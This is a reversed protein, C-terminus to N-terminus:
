WLRADRLDRADVTVGATFLRTWYHRADSDRRDIVPSREIGFSLFIRLEGEVDARRRRPAPMQYAITPHWGAGFDEDAGLLSHAIAFMQTTYWGRRDERIRGVQFYPAVWVASIIGGAGWDVASARPKPAQWFASAQSFLLAEWGPWPPVDIGLRVASGLSDPKWTRAASLLLPVPGTEPEPCVTYSGAASGFEDRVAYDYCTHTVGTLGATVAYTTGARLAPSHTVYPACGLALLSLLSGLHRATRARTLHAASAAHDLPM